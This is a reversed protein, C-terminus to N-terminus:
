PDSRGLLALLMKEYDGTTEKAIARDLPIGNRRRYEENILKMDVEARTVVVRTLAGEDTGPRNIALRLVKEFHKEPRTLCKVTTRLISLFEDKPDSKLDKNIDNGFENRYHDLTAKIQAKSRTALMRILDKDNYARESIKEHLIKAEAKALTMNVEDGDYRYSTVLSVLLESFEGTTYHEVDEELSKKYRAHYAARLLLLQQPSRTCALEVLIQNSPTSGKTAENALYADCEAPDLTCLDVLRKFENTVHKDLATVLDEGHTEFYRQRMLNRRAANKHALTPIFSERQPDWEALLMRLRNRDDSVLKPVALASM